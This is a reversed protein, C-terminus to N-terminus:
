WHIMPISRLSKMSTQNSFELLEYGDTKVGKSWAFHTTQLEFTHEDHMKDVKEVTDSMGPWTSETPMAKCMFHESRQLYQCSEHLNNDATTVLATPSRNRWWTSLPGIEQMRQGLVVHATSWGWRVCINCGIENWRRTKSAWAIIISRNWSVRTRNGPGVWSRLVSIARLESMCRRTAVTSTCFCCVNRRIHRGLLIYLGSSAIRNRM